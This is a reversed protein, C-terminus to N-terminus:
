YEMAMEIMKLGIEKMNFVMQIYCKDREMDIIKKFSDKMFM